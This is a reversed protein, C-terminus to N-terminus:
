QSVALINFSGTQTFGVTNFSGTQLIAVQNGTGAQLGDVSNGDGDQVIAFLNDTGVGGAEGRVTLSISNGAGTQSLVGPALDYATTATRLAAAVGSFAATGGNRDGEITLDLTNTGDQHIGFANDSGTLSLTATNAGGMQEVGVVNGDGTFLPIDFLNGSSTQAVALENDSGLLLVPGTITNDNGNQLAGFANADGEVSLTLTNGMGLQTATAPAPAALDAFGGATFAAGNGDGTFTLDIGNALVGAEGGRQDILDVFNDSGYQGIHVYSATGVQTIAGIVNGNGAEQHILTENGIGSQDLLGLAQADGRQYLEASNGSGNQVIGGLVTDVAAPQGFRGVVSGTGVQEVYVVNAAPGGTQTQVISSVRNAAAGDIRYAAGTQIVTATNRATAAATEGTQRVQNVRNARGVQTVTLTNRDGTQDIGTGQGSTGIWGQVGGQFLSLVNRNGTQSAFDAARGIRNGQAVRTGGLGTVGTRYDQDIRASNGTGTQAVFSTSGNAFAPAAMLISLSTGALIRAITQPASMKM